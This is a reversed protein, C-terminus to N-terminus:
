NRSEGATECSSIIILDDQHGAAPYTYYYARGLKVGLCTAM